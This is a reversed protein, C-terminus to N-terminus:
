QMNHNCKMHDYCSISSNLGNSRSGCILFIHFCLAAINTQGSRQRQKRPAIGMGCDGEGDGRGGDAVGVAARNRQLDGAERVRLCHHDLLKDVQVGVADNAARVRQHLLERQLIPHGRHNASHGIAVHGAIQVRGGAGDRRHQIELVPIEHLAQDRFVQVLEGAGPAMERGDGVTETDGIKGERLFKSAVDDAIVGARAQGIGDHQKKTWRAYPVATRSIREGAAYRIVRAAVRNHGRRSSVCQHSKAAIIDATENIRRNECQAAALSDGRIQRNDTGRVADGTFDHIGGVAGDSQGAKEHRCLGGVIQHRNGKGIGVAVESHPHCSRLPLQPRIRRSQNHM